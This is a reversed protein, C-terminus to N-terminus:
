MNFIKKPTTTLPTRCGPCSDRTRTSAWCRDCIVHGCPDIFLDILRDMCVFCTFKAYRESNTDVLVKKMAEVKGLGEGCQQTLAIVGLDSEHKDLISTLTAKLDDSKINEIMMQLVNIEEKLENLESLKSSTDVKQKAFELKFNGLEKEFAKWEANLECPIPDVSPAPPKLFNEFIGRADLYAFNM